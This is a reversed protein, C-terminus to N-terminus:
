LLILGVVFLAIIYIVPYAIRCVRAFSDRGQDLHDIVLSALITSAAIIFSVLMFVDALTHYNVRPLKSLIRWQFVVITLLATLSIGVRNVLPNKLMWFVSFSLLVILIIPVFVQYVYYQSIRNYQILLAYQSFPKQYLPNNVDTVGTVFQALHWGHMDAEKAIGGFESFSQLQVLSADYAFPRLAVQVVQKDFPFQRLDMHIETIAVFEERLTVVGQDSITLHLMQIKRPARAKVIAIQPYWIKALLAQAAQTGYIKVRTGADEQDFALRKDKWRLTLTGVFNMTENSEVLALVDNIYLGVQVPVPKPGPPMTTFAQASPWIALIFVFALIFQLHKRCM